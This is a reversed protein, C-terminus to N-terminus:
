CSLWKAVGDHRSCTGRRTRSYSYAGDRRVATVNAGVRRLVDESTLKLWEQELVEEFSPAPTPSSAPLEDLIFNSSKPPYFSRLNRFWAGACLVAPLILGSNSYLKRRM